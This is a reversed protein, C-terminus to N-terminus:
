ASTSKQASSRRRDPAEDKPNAGKTRTQKRDGKAEVDDKELRELRFAHKALTELARAMDFLIARKGESSANRGLKVCEAAARRCDESLIM